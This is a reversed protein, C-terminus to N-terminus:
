NVVINGDKIVKAWKTIEEDVFAALDESSGSGPLAGQADLKQAIAPDALVEAIDANLKHVIDAPTGAPAVLATWSYASFGPVTEAVTPTDPWADLRDEVGVAILALKGGKVHPGASLASDFLVDCVGAVADVLAPGSGKYPIHTMEIDAMTQFLEAALHSPSGAGISCYNVDGKHQNAWDIFEAVTSYPAQAHAVMLLPLTTTKIVPVFDKKPDYSLKEFLSVNITYPGSANMLLTYGDPASRATLVNGIIGSGGAKNEVVVPQGWKEALSQGLLRTILDTSGGPPYTVIVKVPKNPYNAETSIAGHSYLVGLCALLAGAGRRWFRCYRLM